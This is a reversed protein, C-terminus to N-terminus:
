FAGQGKIWGSPIQEIVIQNGGGVIGRQAAAVGEHLTTGVPVEIRIWHTGSNGWTPDLASDIIAQVPGAPKDRTWFRGLKDGGEFAKGQVRYLSITETNSRV